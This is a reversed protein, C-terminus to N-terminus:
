KLINKVETLKQEISTLTNNDLDYDLPIKLNDILSNIRKKQNLKTKYVNMKETEDCVLIDTYGHPKDGERHARKYAGVMLGRDKRYRNNRETVFQTKTVRKVKSAVYFMRGRSWNYNITIEEYVTDGVKINEFKM